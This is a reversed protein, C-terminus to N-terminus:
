KRLLCIVFCLYDICLKDNRLDSTQFKNFIKKYMNYNILNCLIFLMCYFGCFTSFRSQINKSLDEVNPYQQLYVSLEIPINEFNLSDFYLCTKKNKMFIAIFHSGMEYSRDFNIIISQRKDTLLPINDSSYVGLFNPFHFMLNEIFINSLM